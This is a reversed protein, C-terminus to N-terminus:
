KGPRDREQAPRKIEDGDTTVDHVGNGNTVRLLLWLVDDVEETGKRKCIVVLESPVSGYLPTSRRSAPTNTNKM